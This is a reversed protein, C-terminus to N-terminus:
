LSSSCRSTRLVHAAITKYFRYFFDVCVFFERNSHELAMILWSALRSLHPRFIANIYRVMGSFFNRLLFCFCLYFYLVYPRSDYIDGAGEGKM